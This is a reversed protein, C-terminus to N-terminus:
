VQACRRACLARPARLGCELGRANYRALAVDLAYLISIPPTWPMQGIRRSSAARAASRLLLARAARRRTARRRAREARGDGRGAAGRIGEALRHRRRRLGLSGDSVGLGGPRQRFRGADVCRARAAVPALAAMDNAVGTSTENHTLLVGAISRKSTPKSARKFRARISRPASRRRWRKSPAGTARRSRARLTQRLRRGSVFAASRGALVLQRGRGGDRRHGLQRLLM